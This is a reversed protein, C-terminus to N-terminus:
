NIEYSLIDEGVSVKRRIPESLSNKNSLFTFEVHKASINIVKLAPSYNQIFLEEGAIVPIVSGDALTYKDKTTLDGKVLYQVDVGHAKADSLASEILVDSPLEHESSCGSVLCLVLIYGLINKVMNM